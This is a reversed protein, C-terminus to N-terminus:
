WTELFEDTNMGYEYRARGLENLWARIREGGYLCVASFPPFSACPTAYLPEGNIELDAFCIRYDHELRFSLDGDADREWEFVSVPGRNIGIQKTIEESLTFIHRRASFMSFRDNSLDDPMDARIGGWYGVIGSDTPKTGLLFSSRALADGEAILENITM